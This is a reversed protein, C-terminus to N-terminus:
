KKKKSLTRRSILPKISNKEIESEPHDFLQRLILEAETVDDVAQKGKETIEVITEKEKKITAWGNSRLWGIAVSIEEPELSASLEKLTVPGKKEVMLKLARKEPLGKEVFQKGEKGLSYVTKIHNEITVLQKSQLWAAANAVEVAQSFQGTTFIENPTGKGKLTKLTLLVKKENTSLEKIIKDIDM